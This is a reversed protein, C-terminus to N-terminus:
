ACPPAKVRVQFPRFNSHTFTAYKPAMWTPASNANEWNEQGATPTKRKMYQRVADTPMQAVNWRSSVWRPYTTGLGSSYRIVTNPMSALSPPAIVQTARWRKWWVMDSRGPFSMWVGFSPKQHLWMPQITHSIDM